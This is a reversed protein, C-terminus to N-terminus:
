DSFTSAPVGLLDLVKLHLATLKPAFAQVPQGDQVLRHRDLGTFIDFIRTATPARCARDEPYLSLESLNERQMAHRIEREILARTLLALYELCLLGDIRAADKLFVPAVEMPGKLEAHRQELHPQYKYAALLEGPTLRRDNTILPFCGDAAAEANVAAADVTYTLRLRPRTVARYRTDRGPRGRTEQRYATEQECAVAFTVLHSTDTRELIARIAEEAAVQTRMRSRPSQLRSQLKDLEAQARRLRDARRAADVGIKQSSRIWVVRYGEESPTPWPFAWWVRDPDDKRSGRQREVEQWAPLHTVVWTRFEQDENRTRPLVTLFRGGHRAIHDMNARSCLKSDAVYLFACHGVLQVLADWTPIHTTDDPTNGAETRYALPVAGDASVTLIWLLQKLDPRHDKNHGYTITPTPKQGRTEGTADHYAGTFTITTSDNHLQSTDLHFASIMHVVLETLLSARDADFLQSLARAFRDDNVTDHAGKRLGLLAPAYPSAWEAMAYLPQHGLCLCRLLVGLATAAPLRVSADAAPLWRALAEDVGLRSLFHNIIPMAGVRDTELEFPAPLASM